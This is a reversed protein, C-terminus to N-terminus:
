ISKFKFIKDFSLKTSSKFYLDYIKRCELNLDSVQNIYDLKFPKGNPHGKNIEVIDELKKKLPEIKSIIESNNIGIGLEKERVFAYFQLCQLLINTGSEFSCDKFFDFIGM